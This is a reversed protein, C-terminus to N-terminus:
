VLRKIDDLTMGKEFKFDPSQVYKAIQEKLSNDAYTRNILDTNELPFDMTWYKMGGIVLVKYGRNAFIETFGADQILRAFDTMQQKTDPKWALCTYEHPANPYTKAYQWRVSQLYKEAESITM